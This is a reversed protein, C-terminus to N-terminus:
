RKSEHYAKMAMLFPLAPEQMTFQYLLMDREQGLKQVEAGMQAEEKQFNERLKEIELETKMVLVGLEMPEMDLFEELLDKVRADPCTEPAAPGCSPPLTKAFNMFGGWSRSGEYEPLEKLSKIGFLSGYRITPYQKLGADGCLEKGDGDCNVDGVLIAPHNEYQDMLRQWPKVIEKCFSCWPVFFKLFVTKGQSEHEFNKPTIEIAGAVFFCALAVRM